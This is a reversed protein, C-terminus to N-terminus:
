THSHSLMDSCISDLQRKHMFHPSNRIEWSQVCCVHGGNEVFTRAYDSWRFGVVDDHISHHLCFRNRLGNLKMTPLWALYGAITYIGGLPKAYTLGTTIAMAGGQSHGLLYIHRSDIGESVLNDLTQSVLQLSQEIGALSPPDNRELERKDDDPPQFWGLCRHSDKGLDLPAEISAFRTDPLLRACHKSITSMTDIDGGMGHLMLVVRDAVM